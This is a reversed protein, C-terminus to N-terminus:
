KIKKLFSCDSCVLYLKDKEGRCEDLPNLPIRVLYPQWGPETKPQGVPDTVGGYGHWPSFVHDRFVLGATSDVGGM